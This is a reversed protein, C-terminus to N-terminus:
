FFLEIGHQKLVDIAREYQEENVNLIKTKVSSKEMFEVIYPHLQEGIPDYKGMKIEPYEEFFEERWAKRELDEEDICEFKTEDTAQIAEDEIENFFDILYSDDITDVLRQIEMPSLSELDVRTIILDGWVDSHKGEIEGLSIIREYHGSGVYDRWFAWLYEEAVFTHEDVDNGYRSDYVVRLKMIEKM